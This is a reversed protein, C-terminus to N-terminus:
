ASRRVWGLLLVSGAMIAAVGGLGIGIVLYSVAGSSVMVTSALVALTLVLAAAACWGGWVVLRDGARAARQRERLEAKWVMLGASALPGEEESQALRRLAGAVEVALECSQCGQVHEALEISLAGRAAVVDAERDCSSLGRDM